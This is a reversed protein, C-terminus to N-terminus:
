ADNQAHDQSPTGADDMNVNSEAPIQTEAIETRGALERKIRLASKVARSSQSRQHATHDRDENFVQHAYDHQKRSTDVGDPFIKGLIESHRKRVSNTTDQELRGRITPSPTDPGASVSVQLSTPTAGTTGERQQGEKRAHVKRLNAASSQSRRDPRGDKRVLIGEENRVPKSRTKKIESPPDHYVGRPGIEPTWESLREMPSGGGRMGSRGGGRRVISRAPHVAHDDFGNPSTQSNSVSEWGDREWEPTGFSHQRTQMTKRVRGGRSGPGRGGRSGRGRASHSEAARQSESQWGHDASGDQMGHPTSAQPPTLRLQSEAPPGPQSQPQSAVVPQTQSPLVHMPGPLTQSISHSDQSEGTTLRPRKPSGPTPSTGDHPSSTGSELVRKVGANSNVWGDQVPVPEQKQVSETSVELVPKEHHPTSQPVSTSRVPAQIALGHNLHPPAAHTIPASYTPQYPPLASRQHPNFATATESEFRQIKGSLIAVHERLTELDTTRHSVEGLRRAMLELAEDQHGSPMVGSPRRANETRAANAERALNAISQHCDQLEHHLQALFDNVKLLDQEQRRLQSQFEHRLNFEMQRVMEAVDAQNRAQAALASTNVATQTQLREIADFYVERPEHPYSYQNEQRNATSSPQTNKISSGITSEFRPQAPQPSVLLPATAAPATNQDKPPYSPAATSLVDNLQPLQRLPEKLQPRLHLQRSDAQASRAWLPHSSSLPTDLDMIETVTNNPGSSPSASDEFAVLDPASDEQPEVIVTKHPSIECRLEIRELKFFERGSYLQSDAVSSFLIAM